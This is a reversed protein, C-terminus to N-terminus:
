FLPVAIELTTALPATVSTGLTKADDVSSFGAPAVIAAM